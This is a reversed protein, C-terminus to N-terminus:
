LIAFAADIRPGADAPRGLRRLSYSSKALLVARDRRAEATDQTASIM